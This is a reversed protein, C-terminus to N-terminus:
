GFPAPGLSAQLFSELTTQWPICRLSPACYFKLCLWHTCYSLKLFETSMTLRVQLIAWTPDWPKVPTECVTLILPRPQGARSTTRMQWFTNRDNVNMAIQTLCRKFWRKTNEKLTAHKLLSFHAWLLTRWFSSLHVWTLTHPFTPKGLTEASFLSFFKNHHWLEHRTKSFNQCLSPKKYYWVILVVFGWNFLQWSLKTSLVLFSIFGAMLFSLFPTVRALFGLRLWIVLIRSILAILYLRYKLFIMWSMNRSESKVCIRIGFKIGLPWLAVWLSHWGDALDVLAHLFELKDKLTESKFIFSDSFFM